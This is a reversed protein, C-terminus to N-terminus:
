RHISLPQVMTEGKEGSWHVYYLGETFDGISISLNQKGEIMTEQQLQGHTNYFRLVGTSTTPLTINVRDKSPNPYLQLASNVSIPEEIDTFLADKEILIIYQRGIASSSTLGSPFTIISDRYVKLCAMINGNQLEIARRLIMKNTNTDGNVKWNAVENVNGEEDSKLIFSEEEERVGTLLYGEQTQLTTGYYFKDEAGFTQRWLFEGSDDFKSIYYPRDTEFPLAGVTWRGYVMYGDSTSNVLEGGLGVQSTIDKKWELEGGQNLKGLEIFHNPNEFDMADWEQLLMMYGKDNTKTLTRFDYSYTDEEQNLTSSAVLHEEYDSRLCNSDAEFLRWTGIHEDDVVRQFEGLFFSDTDPEHVINAMNLGLNFILTGGDEYKPCHTQLVTGDELSIKSRFLYSVEGFTNPEEAVMEYGILEITTPSSQYIYAPFSRFGHTAKTVVTKWNIQGTTSNVSTLMWGGNVGQEYAVVVQEGLDIMFTSIINDQMVVGTLSEPEASETENQILTTWEISTGSFIPVSQAISFLPLLIIISALLYKM